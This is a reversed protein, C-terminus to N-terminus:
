VTIKDGCNFRSWRSVKNQQGREARGL